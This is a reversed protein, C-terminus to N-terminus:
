VRNRHSLKLIQYYELMRRGNAVDSANRRLSEVFTRQKSEAVVRTKKTYALTGLERMRLALWYDDPNRELGLEESVRLSETLFATVRGRDRGRFAFSTGWIWPSKDASRSALLRNLPSGLAWFLNGRFRVASGALAVRDDAFPALLETAWNREAYADGDICFVYDGTTRAIGRVRAHVIGAPGEYSDITVRPDSGFSRATALTRDTSNHVVVIIEDLSLDQDLLSRICRGIRAEENHAIIVASRKM